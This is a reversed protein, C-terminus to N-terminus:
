FVLDLLFNQLLLMLYNAEVQDFAKEADIAMVALPIKQTSCYDIINLTKRINDTLQRAPIFGAQDLHIYELIILNLRRALVSAFLKSDHNLLLIPRYAEVKQPDKVPKPIVVIWAECWTEPMTGNTLVFNCTEVLSKTLLSSFSKYFEKKLYNKNNKVYFVWGM